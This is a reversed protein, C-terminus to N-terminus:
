KAVTGTKADLVVSIPKNQADHFEITYLPKGNQNALSWTNIGTAVKGSQVFAANIAVHPPIVTGADIASAEMSADYAKPTGDTVNGTAVDLTMSHAGSTNFGAVEYIATKGQTKFSVNTIKSNGFKSEFQDILYNAGVVFISNQDVVGEQQNTTSPQSKRSKSNKEEKTPEEKDAKKEDKVVKVKPAKDVAAKKTNKVDKDHKVVSESKKDGGRVVRTESPAKAVSATEITPVAAAPNETSPVVTEQAVPTKVDQTATPVPTTNRVATGVQNGDAVPAVPTKPAVATTAVDPAVATTPVVPDTVPQAPTAASATEQTVPMPTVPEAATVAVTAGFVGAVALAISSKLISKKM